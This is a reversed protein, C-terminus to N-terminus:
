GGHLRRTCQVGPWYMWKSCRSRSSLNFECCGLPGLHNHPSLRVREVRRSGQKHRPPRGVKKRILMWEAADVVTASMKWACRGSWDFTRECRLESLEWFNRGPRPIGLGDNWTFLRHTKALDRYLYLLFYRRANLYCLTPAGKLRGPGLQKRIKESPLQYHKKCTLAFLMISHPPLHDTIMLLLEVPLQMIPSPVPDIDMSEM